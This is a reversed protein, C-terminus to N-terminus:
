TILSGCCAIMQQSSDYVYTNVCINGASVNTLNVFSDATRFDSANGVQYADPPQGLRCDFPGLDGLGGCHAPLQHVTSSGVADEGDYSIKQNQPKDHVDGQFPACIPFPACISKVKIAFGDM